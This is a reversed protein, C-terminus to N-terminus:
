IDNSNRLNQNSRSFLRSNRLFRCRQIHPAALKWMGRTFKSKITRSRQQEVVGGWSKQRVVLRPHALSTPKQPFIFVKCCFVSMLRTLVGFVKWQEIIRHLPTQVLTQLVVFRSRGRFDQLMRLWVAWLLGHTCPQAQCTRPGICSRLAPGRQATIKHRWQTWDVTNHDHYLASICYLM